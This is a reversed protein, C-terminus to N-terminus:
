KKQQCFRKRGDLTRFWEVIVSAEFETYKWGVRRNAMWKLEHNILTYKMWRKNRKSCTISLKFLSDFSYVGYSALTELEKIHSDIIRKKMRERVGDIYIDFTFRQLDEPMQSLIDCKEDSTKPSVM